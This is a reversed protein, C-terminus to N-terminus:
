HRNKNFLKSINSFLQTVTLTYKLEISIEKWHNDLLLVTDDVVEKEKSEFSKYDHSDALGRLEKVKKILANQENKGKDLLMEIKYMSLVLEGYIPNSFDYKDGKEDLMRLQECKGLFSSVENRLNNMWKEILLNREKRNGFFATLFIVLAGGIIGSIINGM